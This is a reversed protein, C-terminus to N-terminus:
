KCKTSLTKTIQSWKLIRNVPLPSEIDAYVRQQCHM